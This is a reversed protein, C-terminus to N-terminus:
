QFKGQHKKLRREVKEEEDKDYKDSNINIETYSLSQNNTYIVTNSNYSSYGNGIEQPRYANGAVPDSDSEYDGGYFQKSSGKKKLLQIASFIVIFEVLIFAWITGNETDM